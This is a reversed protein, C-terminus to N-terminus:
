GGGRAGPCPQFPGHRSTAGTCHQARIGRDGGRAPRPAAPSVRNYHAAAVAEAFGGGGSRLGGVAEEHRGAEQLANGLHFHAENSDPRAAAAARFGGVAEDSGASGGCCCPAITSLRPFIQSRRWPATSCASRPRRIAPASPMLGLRHLAVPHEPRLRLVEGYGEVAEVLRGDARRVARAFCRTSPQPTAFSPPKLRMM